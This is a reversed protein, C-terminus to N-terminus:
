LTLTCCHLKYSLNSILIWVVALVCIINFYIARKDEALYLCKLRVVYCFLSWM